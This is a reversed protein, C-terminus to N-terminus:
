GGCYREEATGDADGCSAPVGEATCETGHTCEYTCRLGGGGVDRCIGGEPCDADGECPQDDLLALVAECTTLTENVGCYLSAAAGSLSEREGPLPYIFPRACSDSGEPYLCYGTARPTEEFWM